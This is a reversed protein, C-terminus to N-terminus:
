VSTLAADDNQLYTEWGNCGPCQWYFDRARFGCAGCIYRRLTKGYQAMTARMLKIEDCYPMGAQVPLTDLLRSLRILSPSKQMQLCILQRVTDIGHHAVLYDYVRDPIQDSTHHTLYDLLVQGIRESQGPQDHVQLLREAILPFYIAPHKGARMWWDTATSIESACLALDGLLLCARVNAPNVKLAHALQAQATGQQGNKIAEEALECHFQAMEKRCSQVGRAELGAATDLARQWDKECQYLTLLHRAAPDAYAGTALASFTDEARDLLGATLFDQGLAYCAHDREARPLDTRNFLNQHVRIARATEGRRRFLNGLAFHLETTEPDLKAVEIFADIAKDHQENLLFNLGRFYSRPVNANEALLHKLDFRAAMWGLGFAAPIVLLWWFDFEM